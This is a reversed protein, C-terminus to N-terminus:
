DGVVSIKKPKEERPNPIVITLIGNKFVATIDEPAMAVQLAFDRRFHGHLRERRLYADRAVGEAAQRNGAVVLRNNKIEVGVDEKAVGPLDMQIVFGEPTEYIDAPPRWASEALEEEDARTQPFADNFLRNIRGQLLAIDKIPDWKIIAM